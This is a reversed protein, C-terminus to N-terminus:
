QILEIGVRQRALGVLALLTFGFTNLPTEEAENEIAPPKEQPALPQLPAIVSANGLAFNTAASFADSQVSYITAIPQGGDYIGVELQMGMAVNKVVVDLSQNGILRDHTVELVAGNINIEVPIPLRDEGTLFETSNATTPYYAGQCFPENAQTGIGQGLRCNYDISNQHGRLNVNVVRAPMTPNIEDFELQITITTKDQLVTLKRFDLTPLPPSHDDSEDTGEYLLTANASACGLLLLLLAAKTKLM